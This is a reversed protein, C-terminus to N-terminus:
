ADHRCPVLSKVVYVNTPQQAAIARSDAGRAYLLVAIVGLLAVLAAAFIAVIRRGM